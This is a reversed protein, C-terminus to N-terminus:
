AEEIELIQYTLGPLVAKERLVETRLGLEATMADLREHHGLTSFGLLLRGSRNLRSRGEALFTWHTEYGPDFIADAIDGANGDRFDEPPEIFNSNWFVVDFRADAPLAAFLDSRLVRVRDGVKHRAVNRRTNEVAIESIDVATVEACGALAAEVALVGAGSGVELLSGGAPFPMWSTFLQTSFCYVPAFVGNLLEWQRGFLAFEGPRDASGTNLDLLRRGWAYTTMDTM